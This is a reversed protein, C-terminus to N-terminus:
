RALIIKIERTNWVIAKLELRSSHYRQESPTTEKSVCYVLHLTKNTSSHLLAGVISKSCADTHVETVASDPDNLSLVPKSKLIDKLQQFIREQEATWLFSECKKTLRTLPEVM